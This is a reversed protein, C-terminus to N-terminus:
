RQQPPSVPQGPVASTRDLPVDKLLVRQLLALGAKVCVDTHGVLSWQLHLGACSQLFFIIM